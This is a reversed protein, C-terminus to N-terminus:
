EGIKDLVDQISKFNILDEDEFKYNLLEEVELVVEVLDLSDLGLEKFTATKTIEKGKVRPELAKKVIEFKNM